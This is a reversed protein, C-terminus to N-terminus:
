VFSTLDRCIGILEEFFNRNRSDVYTLNKRLFIPNLLIKLILLIGLSHLFLIKVGM